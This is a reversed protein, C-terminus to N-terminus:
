YHYKSPSIKYQKLLKNDKNKLINRLNTATPLNVKKTRKYWNAKGYQGWTPDALYWCNKEKNWFEVWAHNEKKKITKGCIYVADIGNKKFNSSIKNIQAYLM